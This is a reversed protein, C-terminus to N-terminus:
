GESNAHESPRQRPSELEGALRHILEARGRVGVKDFIAAVQNAVTRVSVGRREAIAANSLGEVMAALVAREAVTLSAPARVPGLPFSLVVLGDGVPDLGMLRAARLAQPAPLEGECAAAPM